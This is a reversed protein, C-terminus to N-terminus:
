RTIDRALELMQERSLEGELRYTRDGVLWILVNGALRTEITHLEGVGYAWMLVHEGGELWLGFEGIEVPRVKTEAGVVKKAIGAQDGKFEGLLVPKSEARFVTAIFGPRTYFRTPAPGDFEPLAIRIMALAEAERRSLASGLGAALPRERAAPLTEVQEVTVAGIHIFRLIASRAEPVAMAIGFAVVVLAVAVILARGRSPRELRARVRPAIDLAPFDLEGGLSHLARELETM